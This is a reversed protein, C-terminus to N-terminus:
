TLSLAETVKSIAGSWQGPQNQRFIKVHRYWLSEDGTLGWRWEPVAPIMLWTEKGLAGALHVVTGSTAIILDLSAVQAAADVLSQMPDFDSDVYIPVGTEKEVAKVEQACDGYQLSVFFLDKEKLIPSWHRLPLSKAAGISPNISEWAIGVKLRGQALAEYKKEFSLVLHSDVDLYRCPEPFDDRSSRCVRGLSGIPLQSSVETIVEPPIADYGFIPMTTSYSSLLPVLRPDIEVVVQVGRKVLEPLMSAFLIQDGLGQEGWILVKQNPVQLNGKWMPLGRDRRDSINSSVHWRSEYGDWGKAWQGQLLQLHGLKHSAESCDPDIELAAAYDSAAAEIQGLKAKAVGRNVLSLVHNHRVSIVQDYVNIASALDGTDSEILGLGMTADAWQTSGNGTIKLVRQYIEKAEEFEKMEYLLIGKNLLVEPSDPELALSTDYALLAENPRDLNKLSNGRVNHAKVLLSQTRIAKDAADLAANPQGDALFFRALNVLASAHAPEIELAKEFMVRSGEVDGVAELAMGLDNLIGVDNPRFKAAKELLTVAQKPLGAHIQLAGKLWLADPQIPNRKLVKDYDALAGSLDGAKHKAVGSDLLLAIKPSVKSM